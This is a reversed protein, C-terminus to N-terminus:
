SNKLIKNTQNAIYRISKKNMAMGFPLYVARSAWLEGGPFKLKNYKKKYFNLKSYLNYQNTALIGKSRLLKIMKKKQWCFMKFPIIM